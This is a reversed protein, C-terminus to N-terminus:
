RRKRPPKKPTYRKSEAVARTPTAVAAKKSNKSTAPARGERKAKSKERAVKGSGAFTPDGTRQLRFARLVLWGGLILFLFGAAGLALGLLIAATIVGVRKELKTFIFIAAAIAVILLFQLVWYSPHTLLPKECVGSVLKYGKALAAAPCTKAKSLPTTEQIITNKFLHTGIKAALALAVAGGVYSVRREIRDLGMIAERSAASTPRPGRSFRSLFSRPQEDNEPVPSPYNAESIVDRTRPQLM